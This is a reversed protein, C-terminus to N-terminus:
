AAGRETLMDCPGIAVHGITPGPGGQLRDFVLHLTECGTKAVADQGPRDKVGFRHVSPVFVQHSAIDVAARKGAQLEKQPWGPTLVTGRKRTHVEAGRGRGGSAPDMAHTAIPCCSLRQPPGEPAIFSRSCLSIMM